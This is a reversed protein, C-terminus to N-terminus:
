YASGGGGAGASDVVPTSVLSGTQPRGFSDGPTNGTLSPSESTGGKEQALKARAEELVTRFPSLSCLIAWNLMVPKVSFHCIEPTSMQWM